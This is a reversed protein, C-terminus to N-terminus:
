KVINERYKIQGEFNPVSFGTYCGSLISLVFIKIVFPLKIFYSIRCLHPFSVISYWVRGLIGCPFTVFICYVDGVRALLVAMELLHSVSAFAHSVCSVFRDM